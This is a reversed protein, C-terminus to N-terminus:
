CYTMDTSTTVSFTVAFGALNNTFRELFPECDANGDIEFQDRNIDAKQLVRLVRTALALQTNLIDDTNDNGEFQNTIEENSVDVIDMLFMTISLQVANQTITASNLMLHCLPFITQKELDIDSINGKTVTHNFPEASVTQKISDLVRFYSNM